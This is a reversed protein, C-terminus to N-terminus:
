RTPEETCSTFGILIASVNDDAGLHVAEDFLRNLASEVSPNETLIEEICEHSLIGHLGDSCVMLVDGPILRPGAQVSLTFDSSGLCNLITRRKSSVSAEEETMCGSRVALGVLSDDQTLARLAGQRFRYVRSDGASFVLYGAPTLCIGALTCGMSTLEPRHAAVDLLTQNARAAAANIAARASEIMDDAGKGNGYFQTDFASLALRSATAGGAEGGIGDAVALVVGFTTLYDDDDQLRLTISGRNKLFRGVLIHDENASRM